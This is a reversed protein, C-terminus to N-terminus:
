FVKKDLHISNDKNHCLNIHGHYKTINYFCTDDQYINKIKKLFRYWKVTSLTNCINPKQAIIYKYHYENVFM